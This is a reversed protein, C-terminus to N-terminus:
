KQIFTASSPPLKERPQAPETPAGIIVGGGTGTAPFSFFPLIDEPRVQRRTDDPLLPLPEPTSTKPRVETPAAATVSPAGVLDDLVSAAQRNAAEIAGEKEPVAPPPPAPPASKARVLAPAAAFRLPAPGIVTLYPHTADRRPEPYDQDPSPRRYTASKLRPVADSLLFPLLVIAIARCVRQLDVPSPPKKSKM